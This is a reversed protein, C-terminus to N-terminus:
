EKIDTYLKNFNENSEKQVYNIKKFVESFKRENVFNSLVTDIEGSHNYDISYKEINLYKYSEKGKEEYSINLAPTGSLWSLICMHLRTGVVFDFNTLRKRLDQLNYFSDDVKVSNQIKKDLESYIKKAIISDDKYMPEGQCTSLFTIEYGNEYFYNVISKILDFYVKESRDDFKWERVSIAVKNNKIKSYDITELLFAADKTQYLNKFNGLELTRNMSIDDRVYFLNFHKVYKAFIKSDKGKFPGISQSYMYIKKRLLFKYLTMLQLRRKFSYYSNIYGGPASIIADFNRHEKSSILLMSLIILGVVPIKIVRLPLFSQIWNKEPYIEKIKKLHPVSYYVEHGREEFKEGVSFILAADGNNLPVTNEILIKM